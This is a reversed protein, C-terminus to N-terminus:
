ATDVPLSVSMESPGLAEMKLFLVSLKIRFILASREELVDSVVLRYPTVGWFDQVEM